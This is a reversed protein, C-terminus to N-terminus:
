QALRTLAVPGPRLPQCPLHNAKCFAPNINQNARHPGPTLIAYPQSKMIEIMAAPACHLEGRNLGQKDLRLLSSVTTM